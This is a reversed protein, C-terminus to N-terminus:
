ADICCHVVDCVGCRQRSFTSPDSLHVSQLGLLASVVADRKLDDETMTVPLSHLYLVCKPNVLCLEEFSRLSPTPLSPTDEIGHGAHSEGLQTGPLRELLDGGPLDAGATVDDLLQAARTLGWDRRQAALGPALLPHYKQRLWAETHHAAFFAGGAEQEWAAKYDAYKAELEATPTEPPYSDTFQSYSQASCYPTPRM